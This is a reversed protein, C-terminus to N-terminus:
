SSKCLRLICFLLNTTQLKVARQSLKETWLSPSLFIFHYSSLFFTWVIVGAGVTLLTPRSRSYDLNFPRGPVPFNGLM